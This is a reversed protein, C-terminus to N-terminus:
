MILKNTSLDAMSVDNFFDKFEQRTIKLEVSTDWPNVLYVFEKDARIVSYCHNRTIIGSSGDCDQIIIDKKECGHASVNMIINSNNVKDILDDTIENRKSPEQTKPKWEGIGLLIRYAVYAHHGEGTEFGAINDYEELYKEVALEIARVDLDGTSMQKNGIIDVLPFTYKKHIGKLHVTVSKDSNVKISNNLLELGKPSSVISKISALLWCNGTNWQEFDADIKGNPLKNKSQEVGQYSPRYRLKEVLKDINKTSAPFIRSKINRCEKNYERVIDNVYIKKQSYSNVLQQFIINSYRIRDNIDLGYESFIAAFISEKNDTKALYVQIVSDVNDATIKSLHEKISESTTPFGLSTKDSVDNFIQNAIVAAGNIIKFNTNQVTASLENNDIISDKNNDNQKIVTNLADLENQQIINDGNDINQFISNLTDNSTKVNSWKENLELTKKVVKNQKNFFFIDM